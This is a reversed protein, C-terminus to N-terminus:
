ESNSENQFGQNDEKNSVQKKSELAEEPHNLNSNILKDAKPDDAPALGIVSRIENSTMIENRTFKDAIEALNNVPVLKFPDRFYMIDQGQTIATKTLWKRAMDETIAALIPNVTRNYYNLYEEESATGDAIKQSFGMENKLQTQLDTIQNWLNNELSRNLQIVKETGDIYGIGYQAGSMQEELQKRRREAFAEKRPSNISYPYQIILDMKGPSLESNFKDMMGLTKKLRQLTVNQENMISYFPNEVIVTYAKKVVLDEHQQTKSRFIRVRVHEPFWEMIKGVRLEYINYSDTFNPDVDTTVPVIAVCGDDLMSMVADQILARATQDINASRTLVWNLSDNITEKYQGDDNKRVHKINIQSVDVAIQNFFQVLMSRAAVVMYRIRDPRSSYGGYGPPYFPRNKDKEWFADWSNKFREGISAM